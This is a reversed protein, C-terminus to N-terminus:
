DDYWKESDGGRDRTYLYIIVGLALIGIALIVGLGEYNM